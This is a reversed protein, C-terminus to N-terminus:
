IRKKREDIMYDIWANIVSQDTLSDINEGRVNPSSFLIPAILFCHVLAASIKKEMLSKEDYL